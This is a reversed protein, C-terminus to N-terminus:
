WQLRQQRPRHRGRRRRRRRGHEYQVAGRVDHGGLERLWARPARSNRAIDLSYFVFGVDHTENSEKVPVSPTRQARSQRALM